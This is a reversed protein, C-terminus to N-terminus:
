LARALGGVLKSLRADAPNANLRAAVYPAYGPFENGPVLTGGGFGKGM